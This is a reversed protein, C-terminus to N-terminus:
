KCKSIQHLNSNVIDMIEDHFETIENGIGRAQIIKLPKLCIEITEVPTDNVKASLILSNKKKFYGSHFVCHNMFEGEDYFEAITKFPYVSINGKIFKLGFFKRKEKTYIKQIEVSKRLNDIRSKEAQIKKKKQLLEDHADKLNDPCIYKPNFLDKQFYELFGLYDFWMSADIVKYNNRICIRITKWYETVRQSNVYMSDLLHIQKTKLLTEAKSNSLIIQFLRHPSFHYFQGNFGNRKLVPLIKMKPYTCYSNIDVRARLNSSECRVELKSGWVWKDFYGSLSNVKGSLTTIKGSPEIWHQLVENHFYKAAERKSYYKTMYIMRVVQKIGKTTLTSCYMNESFHPTYADKMKLESKCKPCTCGLLTTGMVFPDIWKHGCELCYLSHRSRAAYKTMNEHFWYIQKESITPLQASLKTVEKQLITKPKM